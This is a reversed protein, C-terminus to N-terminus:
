GVLGERHRALLAASPPHRQPWALRRGELKLFTERFAEQGHHEKLAPSLVMRGDEDFSMLRQDFAADYTAALLIGNSPNLRNEPDDSWPSIHSARLVPQLGLGTLACRGHYNTMLMRRFVDQHVRTRVERRIDEAARAQLRAIGASFEDEEFPVNALAASVADGDMAQVQSWREELRQTYGRTALFEGYSKLAASYYGNAGYSRPLGDALFMSGDRKQDRLATEYLAAIEVPSQLQWFDAGAAYLLNPQSLIEALLDLARVYSSAKNSGPANLGHIYAEYQSRM